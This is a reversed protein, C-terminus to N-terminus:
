FIISRYSKARSFQQNRLFRLSSEKLIFLCSKFIFRFFLELLVQLERFASNKLLIVENKGKM